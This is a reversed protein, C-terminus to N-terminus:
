ILQLFMLVLGVVSVAWAGTRVWPLGMIYVVAHGIRGWFFLYAGLETTTNSINLSKAALVLIAFIILSELMNRHARQARGGWGTIEPMSERNGALRALGVQQLAGLVSVGALVLTLIAAWLLLSLEITM